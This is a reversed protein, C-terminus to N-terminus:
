KRGGGGHVAALLLVPIVFLAVVGGSVGLSFKSYNGLTRWLFSGARQLAAHAEKKEEETAEPDALTDAAKRGEDAAEKMSAELEAATQSETPAPELSAKDEAPVGEDAPEDATTPSDAATSSDAPSEAPEEKLRRQMVEEFFADDTDFGLRALDDRLTDTAFPLAAAAAIQEERLIPSDINTDFLKEFAAQMGPGFKERVNDPLQPLAEILARLQIASLREKLADADLSTNARLVVILEPYFLGLDRRLELVKAPDTSGEMESLKQDFEEQAQLNDKNRDLYDARVEDIIQERRAQPSDNETTETPEAAAGAAGETATGATAKEGPVAPDAGGNNNEPQAAGQAPPIVPPPTTAGGKLTKGANDAPNETRGGTPAPPAGTGTAAETMSDTTMTYDGKKKHL